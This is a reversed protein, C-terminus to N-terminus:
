KKNKLRIFEGRYSGYRMTTGVLMVVCFVSYLVFFTSLGLLISLIITNNSFILYSRSTINVAISISSIVTSYRYFFLINDFVNQNPKDKPHINKLLYIFDNDSMSVIIALGAISVAIMTGSITIFVITLSAIVDIVVNYFFCLLTFAISLLLSIYFDESFIIRKWGIKKSMQIFTTEEYSIVKNDVTM